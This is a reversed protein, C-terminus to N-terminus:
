KALHKEIQHAFDLPVEYEEGARLLVMQKHLMCSLDHAMKVKVKPQEHSPKKDHAMKPHFKAVHKIAAPANKIVPIGAMNTVTAAFQIVLM